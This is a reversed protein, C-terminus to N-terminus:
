QCCAARSPNECESELLHTRTYSHLSCSFTLFCKELTIVLLYSKKHPFISFYMNSQGFLEREREMWGHAHTHTAWGCESILGLQDSRLTVSLYCSLFLVMISTHIKKKQKTMGYLLNNFIVFFLFMKQWCHSHFSHLVACIIQCKIIYQPLYVLTFCYWQVISNEM